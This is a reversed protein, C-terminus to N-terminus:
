TVTVTMRMNGAEAHYTCKVKYVGPQSFTYDVTSGTPVDKNMNETGTQGEPLPVFVNHLTSVDNTWQIKTGVPVNMCGPTFAFNTLHVVGSSPCAPAQSTTTTTAASGGGGGGACGAMVFAFLCCAFLVGRM